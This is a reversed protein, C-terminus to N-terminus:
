RQEEHFVGLRRYKAIRRNVREEPELAGLEDVHRILAERLHGATLVSDRQAGGPAERVIEDVVGLGFLDPATLRLADAAQEARGSDRWLISACGEPTIVSYISFELMMVRDAVAIALAGGSGGEGIIATVIPVRLEMMAQLNAAIAEAQGREEAGVGPYAGQTDVFTVVPREFREALRMLRKAKRYGEPRPSGFNRHINDKTGRGKQHGIVVLPRGGLRALGGVISADDAFRRDGHLEVFEDFVHPVYDLTFPRSPHRALQVIQWRTLGRFIEERLRLARRELRKIEDQVRNGTGFEKLEQLKRELEVLPKEFPLFYTAM